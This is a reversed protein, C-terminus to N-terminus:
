AIDISAWDYVYKRLDLWYQALLVTDLACYYFMLDAINNCGYYSWFKKTNQYEEISPTRQSLTNYFEKRKPFDKIRHVKLKNLKEYPFALKNQSVSFKRFLLFSLNSFYHICKLCSFKGIILNETPKFYFLNKPSDM